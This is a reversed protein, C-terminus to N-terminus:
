KLEVWPDVIPVATILYEAVTRARVANLHSHNSAVEESTNIASATFVAVHWCKASAGKDTLKFSQEMENQPPSLLFIM